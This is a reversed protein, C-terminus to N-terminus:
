AMSGGVIDLLEATIAAQRGKNYQLQLQNLLEDANDTAVQMAIIRAAHESAASDLLKTYLQLNLVKPLLDAMVEEPSPEVIYFNNNVSEAQPANSDITKLPLYQENTYIQVASSKFHHYLVHCADIDKSLYLHMIEHAIQATSEYNPHDVLTCCDVVDSLNLKRCAELAKKGFAYVKYIEIQQHAFAEVQHKLNKIITSNFAGCLSSNSTFVVLCVRKVPRESALPTTFNEDLTANFCALIRSITQAYPRLNEIRQQAHHLKSSAVMKMASTIKRTSKVSQIRLKVEKLSAM